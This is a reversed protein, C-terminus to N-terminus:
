VLESLSDVADELSRLADECSTELMELEDITDRLNDRDKAIIKQHEKIQNIIKRFNIEEVM